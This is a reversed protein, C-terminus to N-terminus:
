SIVRLVPVRKMYGLIRYHNSSDIEMVDKVFNEASIRFLINTRSLVKKTEEDGIEFNLSSKMHMLTSLVDYIGNQIMFIVFKEKDSELFIKSSLFDDLFLSEIIFINNNYKKLFKTEFPEKENKLSNATSLYASFSESDYSEFYNFVFINLNECDIKKSFSDKGFFNKLLDMYKSINESSILNKEYEGNYYSSEMYTFYFINKFCSITNKLDYLEKELTKM